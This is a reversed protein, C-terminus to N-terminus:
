MQCDVGLNWSQHGTNKKMPLTQFVIREDIILQAFIETDDPLDRHPNSPSKVIIDTAM